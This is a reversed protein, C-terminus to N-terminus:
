GTTAVSSSSTLSASKHHMTLQDHRQQQQAQTRKASGERMLRPLNMLQQQMVILYDEIKEMRERLCDQEQHMAQVSSFIDSQTKALDVITNANDTLKRQDRKVKRLNHIAQLFKRQHARVKSPNVRKVLKTYKYILWTERLVNAASNKLRKTLATDMMFNHVHKEARTLELKRAFVAVVLATCCSGMVGTTISIARGCYTNPVIDGYGISLFTIAILWMSNLINGHLMDHYSECARMLWSATIWLTLIFVLLVTGPFMTMLTKLVFRTNFSIRNLAGISRSSADTFLKSHLLMVRFILYLRLFMPLSLFLDVPVQVTRSTRDHPIYTQWAFNLTNPVPHVACICVEALMQAVRRSTIAIRWDEICNDISFLQIELAHYGLILAVLVLTSISILSRLITSYVDVKEYLKAMTLETELIMVFIGFMGFALAYDSLRKRKEYLQRRRGLRYGVNKSPREDHGAGDNDGVAIGGTSSSAAAQVSTSASAEPVIAADVEANSDGFSAPFKKTGPQPSQPPSSAGEVLLLATTEQAQQQQQQQQPHHHLQHLEGGAPADECSSGRSTTSAGGGGGGGAHVRKLQRFGTVAGNVRMFDVGLDTLFGRSRSAESQRAASAAAAASASSSASCRVSGGHCCGGGQHHRQLSQQHQQHQQQSHCRHHHHHHQSSDQVKQRASAAGQEVDGVGSAQAPPVRPTDSHRRQRLQGSSLDEEEALPPAPLYRQQPQPGGTTTAPRNAPKKLSRCQRLRRADVGSGSPAAAAVGVAAPKIAAEEVLVEMLSERSSSFNSSLPRDTSHHQCACDCICPLPQDSKILRSASSDSFGPPDENAAPAATWM